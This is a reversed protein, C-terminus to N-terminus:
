PGVAMVAEPPALAAAANLTPSITPVTGPCIPRGMGAAATGTGNVRPIGKVILTLAEKATGLAGGERNAFAWTLRENESKSASAIVSAFPDTRRDGPAGAGIRSFGM